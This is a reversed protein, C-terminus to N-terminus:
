GGCSRGIVEPLTRAEACRTRAVSRIRTRLGEGGELCKRARALIGELESDEPFASFEVPDDYGLVDQLSRMKHATSELCVCPTGGLSALITPHYRGSIFLRANALVSGCLLIPSSVPIIGLGMELALEHLFADRGCNEALYVPYGLKMLTRILKAYSQKSRKQDSASLAGGGICIYPRTFDLRGLYERREPYGIIFDGNNPLNFGDAEYISFWSFLADPIYSCPIGPMQRRVYRLSEPDRVTVLDCHALLDRTRELTEQNKGTTPCDSIMSNIFCVKKELHLGLQIMALMFLVERRPPTTFVFDGEGNIVLIDAELADRFIRDLPPHKSKHRLLNKVSEEPDESICDKAGLLTELRVYWDYLRRKDRAALLHMFVWHYRAPLLTGVYGFGASHLGFAAGPVTGCVQFRGSLLQYLAIGAGRGGWNPSASNDGVYLVKM